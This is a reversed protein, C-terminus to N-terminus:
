GGHLSYKKNESLKGTDAVKPTEVTKEVTKVVEKKDPSATKASKANVAEGPDMDISGKFIAGDELSMRPAVINGHVNGSRSIIVKETGTIDGRVAGSIKIVKATIDANVRGSQGIEVHNEGLRIKGDVKGEIVLNEDGSIDGNIHIGPGIIAARGSSVPASAPASPSEQQAESVMPEQKSNKHKEFM